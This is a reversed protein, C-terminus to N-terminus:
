TDIFILCIYYHLYLLGMRRRIRPDEEVNIDPTERLTANSEFEEFVDSGECGVVESREASSLVTARARRAFGEREFSGDEVSHDSVKHHLASVESLEIASASLADISMFEWILIELQAM